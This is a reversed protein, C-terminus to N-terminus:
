VGREQMISRESAAPALRQGYIHEASIEGGTLQRVVPVFEENVAYETGFRRIADLLLRIEEATRAVQPRSFLIIKM